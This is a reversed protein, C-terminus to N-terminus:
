NPDDDEPEWDLAIQAYYLRINRPDRRSLSSFREPIRSSTEGLFPTAKEPNVCNGPRMRRVVNSACSWWNSRMDSKMTYRIRNDPPRILVHVSGNNLALGSIPAPFCQLRGESLQNKSRKVHGKLQDKRLSVAAQSNIELNRQRWYRRNPM